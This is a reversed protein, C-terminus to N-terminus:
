HRPHHFSSQWSHLMWASGSLLFLLWFAEASSALSGGTGDRVMGSRREFPQHFSAGTPSCRFPRRATRWCRCGPDKHESSDPDAKRPAVNKCQSSTKQLKPSHHHLTSCRPMHRAARPFRGEMSSATQLSKTVSPQRGPLYHNPFLSMSAVSYAFGSAAQL